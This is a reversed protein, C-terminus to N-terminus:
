PLQHQQQQKKPKQQEKRKSKMEVQGPAQGEESNTEMKTRNTIISKNNVKKQLEALEKQPLAKETELRRCRSELEHMKRLRELQIDSENKDVPKLFQTILTDKLKGSSRSQTRQNNNNKQSSGESIIENESIM